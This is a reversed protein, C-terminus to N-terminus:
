FCSKTHWARCCSIIGARARLQTYGEGGAKACERILRCTGPYLYRPCGRLVGEVPANSHSFSPPNAATLAHSLRPCTKPPIKADSDPSSAPDPPKALRGGSAVLNNPLRRRIKTPISGILSLLSGRGIKCVLDIICLAPQRIVGDKNRDVESQDRGTVDRTKTRPLSSIVGILPIAM